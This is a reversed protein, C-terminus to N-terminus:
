KFITDRIDLNVGDWHIGGSRAGQNGEFICNAITLSVPFKRYSFGDYISFAGSGQIHKNKNNRFTNIQYLKIQTTSNKTQTFGQKHISNEINRTRFVTGGFINGVDGFM